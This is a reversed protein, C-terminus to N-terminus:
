SDATFIVSAYGCVRGACYKNRICPRWSLSAQQEFCVANWMGTEGGDHEYVGSTGM